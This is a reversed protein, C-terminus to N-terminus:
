KKMEWQGDVWQWCVGYGCTPWKGDKCTIYNCFMREATHLCDSPMAQKAHSGSPQRSAVCQETWARIARNDCRHEFEYGECESSRCLALISVFLLTKM